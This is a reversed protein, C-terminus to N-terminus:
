LLHKEGLREGLDLSVANLSVCKSTRKNEEPSCICSLLHAPVLCLISHECQTQSYSMSASGAGRNWVCKLIFSLM